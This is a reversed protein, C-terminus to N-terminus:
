APTTGSSSPQAGARGLWAAARAWVLPSAGGGFTVTRYVYFGGDLGLVVQRREESEQVGLTHFADKFALVLQEVAEGKKCSRLLPLLLADETCDALRAM